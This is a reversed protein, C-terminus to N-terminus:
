SSAWAAWGPSRGWSQGRLMPLRIFPALPAAMVTVGLGQHTPAHPPSGAPRSRRLRLTNSRGAPEARRRKQTETREWSSERGEAAGHPERGANHQEQPQEPRQAVAAGWTLATDPPQPNYHATRAPAYGTAKRRHKRLALGAKSSM